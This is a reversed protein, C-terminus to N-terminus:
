RSLEDMEQIITTIQQTGKKPGRKAGKPHPPNHRHRCPHSCYEQSSPAQGGRRAIKKNCLPDKCLFIEDIIAETEKWEGRVLVQIKRKQRVM